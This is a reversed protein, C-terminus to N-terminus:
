LLHNDRHLKIFVRDVDRYPRLHNSHVPNKMIKGTNYHRLLFNYNPCKTEVFYPGAWCRKMKHCIGPKNTEDFLLVKSGVEYQPYAANKDYYLKNEENAAVHESHAIECALELKQLVQWLYMDVDPSTKIDKFISTDSVLKMPRAYLIEYPSLKTVTMKLARHSLLVSDVHTSWATDNKCYLRFTNLITSM